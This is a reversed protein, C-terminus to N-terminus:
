SESRELKTLLQEVQSAVDDRDLATAEVRISDLPAKLLRNLSVDAMGQLARVIEL